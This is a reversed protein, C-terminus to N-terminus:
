VEFQCSLFAAAVVEQKPGQRTRKSCSQLLGRYPLPVLSQLQQGQGECLVARCVPLPKESKLKMITGGVCVRFIEPM